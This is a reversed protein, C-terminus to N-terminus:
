SLDEWLELPSPAKDTMVLAGYITLCAALIEMILGGLTLTVTAGATFVTAITGGVKVGLGAPYLASSFLIIALGQAQDPSLKNEDVNGATEAAIVYTNKIDNFSILTLFFPIISLIALDMLIVKATLRTFELMVDKLSWIGELMDIISPTQGILAKAFTVFGLNTYLINIDTLMFAIMANTMTTEFNLLVLERLWSVAGKVDEWADRLEGMIRDYLMIFAVARWDSEYHQLRGARQGQLWAECTQQARVGQNSCEILILLAILEALAVQPEYAGVPSCFSGRSVFRLNTRPPRPRYDRGNRVKPPFEECKGRACSNGVHAPIFNRREAPNQWMGGFGQETRNATIDSLLSSFLCATNEIQEAEQDHIFYDYGNHHCAASSM